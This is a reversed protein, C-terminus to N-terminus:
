IIFVAAAVGTTWVGEKKCTAIQTANITQKNNKMFGEKKIAGTTALMKKATKEVNKELKRCEENYATQEAVYGHLNKKNSTAVGIGAGITEDKKKTQNKCLVCFTIMGPTIEKIGDEKKIIKCSPPVISSVRVLNCKEIGADRLAMEFSQLKNKDRGLGKTLFMKKPVM